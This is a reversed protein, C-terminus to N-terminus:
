KDIIEVELIAKEFPIGKRLMNHLRMHNSSTLVVLNNPNNNSKNFDIHHVIEGKKLYRGLMKEAILTHEYVTNRKSVNPHSPMYIEAYGNTKIRRGGKWSPNHEATQAESRNRIPYGFKKLYRRIVFHSVNLDKAIQHTSKEDHYYERILYLQFQRWDRKGRTIYSIRDNDNSPLNNQKLLKKVEKPTKCGLISCMEKITKNEDIYLKELEEKSFDKPM